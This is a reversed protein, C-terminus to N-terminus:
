LVGYDKMAKKLVEVHAPELETLPLRLPGAEYGMLTM